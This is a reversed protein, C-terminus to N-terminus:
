PCGLNSKIAGAEQLLQASATPTLQGSKTKANIQAIFANLQGCASNLNNTNVNSLPASLSNAVGGPLGLSSITVSLNQIAQAPTIVAWTFELPHLANGAVDIIKLRFTHTGLSLSSYAKPSACTVYPAADLSCQLDAVGFADSGAFTFTIANSLTAGGRVVAAGGGDLASHVAGDPVTADRRVTVSGTRSIGAGTTAVCTFTRGRTDTSQTEGACVPSMGSPGGSSVSWAVNVNSTYWGDVGQTGTVTATVIPVTADRKVSVSRTATGGGSTATCTFTREDGNTAVSANACGTSETIASEDDVVAWSIAVDSTYWDDTGRTGIVTPTILPASTDKVLIQVTSTSTEVGDSVSLTITHSGLPLVVTPSAGTATGFSGTWTFSLADGDADSSASGDLTVSAGAASTASVIRDAGARAAPPQNPPAILSLGTPVTIVSGALADNGWCVVSGDSKLACSHFHGDSLQVVSSLGSPVVARGDPYGYNGWCVVTADSKLACTHNAGASVQVVSGLGTPVVTNGFENRGWCAVTADSKVACTYFFGASVQKFPRLSAPVAAQGYDNRGWCRLTGDVELACTHNNGASVQSVPGLAAPVTAQGEFNNGWCRLTRNTRLACTHGGGASVQAVLGIETPVNSQSVNNAGWCNVSGAVSVSCNHGDGASVQAVPPLGAPINVQGRDNRGWCVLAGDMKLACAHWGGASVQASTTPIELPPPPPQPQSAGVLAEFATSHSNDRGNAALYITGNITQPRPEERSGLYRPADAWANTAPDYVVVSNNYVITSGAYDWSAVVYIRNNLVTAGLGYMRRPLPAVSSWTNTAPDLRDVMTLGNEALTSGGIVYIAGGLEVVAGTMRATPLPARSSWTGSQTNFVEVADSRECPPCAKRGGIVWLENGFGVAGAAHRPTPMPPAPAWTNSAPDYVDVINTTSIRCDSNFECGGAVYVKGNVAAAAPYSHGRPISARQSWTGLSVSYALTVSEYTNVGTGGVVYYTDGIAATATGNRALPMSPRPEWTGGSSQLSVRADGPAGILDPSTLGDDRCGYVSVALAILGARVFPYIVRM